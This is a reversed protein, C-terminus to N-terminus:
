KFSIIVGTEDAIQVKVYIKRGGYVPRYVDQWLGIAHRAKMSKEFDRRTMSCVCEAIGVPSIGLNAAGDLASRRIIYQGAAILAKITSLSYTPEDRRENFM